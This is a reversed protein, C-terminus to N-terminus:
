KELMKKLEDIVRKRGHESLTSTQNNEFSLNLKALKAKFDKSSTSTQALMLVCADRDAVGRVNDLKFDDPPNKLKENVDDYLLQNLKSAFAIALPYRKSDVLAQFLNAALRKDFDKVDPLWKYFFKLIIDQNDGKTETQILTVGALNLQNNDSLIADILGQFAQVQESDFSEIRRAVNFALNYNKSNALKISIEALKKAIEQNNCKLSTAAREATDFEKDDV